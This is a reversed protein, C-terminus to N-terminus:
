SGVAIKLRKRSENIMDTTIRAQKSDRVQFYVDMILSTKEIDNLQKSEDLLSNYVDVIEFVREVLRQDVPFQPDPLLKEEEEDVKVDLSEKEHFQDMWGHPKGLHKEFRRATVSGVNRAGNVMQSIYGPATPRVRESLSKQGGYEGILAILNKRRIEHVDM